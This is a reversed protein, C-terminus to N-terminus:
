PEQTAALKDKEAVPETPTLNMHAALRTGIKAFIPAAITGGYRTVKTTLPDDIVVICVFAPDQSPMMGAFSVTYHGTQYRGKDMRIATGTKGAARYGPVKALLATGSPDVVKELAGRMAKATNESLVTAVVEPEYREVMTGDNAIVAKVIHPKRLKGDGAVVSYASAMQLPTVALAYGYTVRSFDVPNGSNRVVGRSEGSLLIGTKSGFGWRGMYDYYRDMGLKLGLMYSGINSSKQLVGEVSLAGYPHHDPVRVKNKHYLGKHCPIVTNPTVLGENLAAGAPVIKITSGPEYTAQLAFNSASEGLNDLLNLNFHPRSAMGLIEGSKPDMVIVCGRKSDFEALGADLEEEVISQVGMDLTLQVNLGPRPPMLSSSDGPIRAGNPARRHEQWGDRGVLFSELAAEIGFKGSQRYRKAGKDDIEEVEGTYGIVHTALDPSPYWRKFSENLFFGELWHRLILERLGDASDAKLDKVIFFEKTGAAIATKIRARMEERKLGLPRALISVAHALGQDLIADAPMDEFEKLLLSREALVRRKRADPDLGEWGQEKSVRECALPYSIVLPDTLHQVNVGVAVVPMSKALIEENRDVIKGRLGPLTERREFTRRAKDAYHKRDWAQIQILRVSLLSLGTVLVSCLLVCRVQFARPTM